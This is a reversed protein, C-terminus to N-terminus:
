VVGASRWRMARMRRTGGDATIAVVPNTPCINFRPVEPLDNGPTAAFLRAMAENPHTMTFRGCM